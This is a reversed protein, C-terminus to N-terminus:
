SGTEVRDQTPVYASVCLGMLYYLQNVEKEECTRARCPCEKVYGESERPPKSAELKMSHSGYPYLSEGM